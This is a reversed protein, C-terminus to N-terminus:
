ILLLIRCTPSKGFGFMSIKQVTLQSIKSRRIKRLSNLDEEKGKFEVFRGLVYKDGKLELRYKMLYDEIECIIVLSIYYQM